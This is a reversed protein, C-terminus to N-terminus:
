LVVDSTLCLAVDAKNYTDSKSQFHEGLVVSSLLNAYHSKVLLVFPYVVQLDLLNNATHCYLSVKVLLSKQNAIGRKPVSM